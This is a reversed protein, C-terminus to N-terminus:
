STGDFGARIAPSIEDKSRPYHRLVFGFINISSAASALAWIPGGKIPLGPCVLTLGTQKSVPVIFTDDSTFSNDAPASFSITVNADAAGYNAAWLYVEDLARSESQHIKTVTTGVAIPVGTKSSSLPFRARGTFDRQQIGFADINIPAPRNDGLAM